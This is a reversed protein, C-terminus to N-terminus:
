THRAFNCCIQFYELRNENSFIRIQKRTELLLQLMLPIQFLLMQFHNFFFFFMYETFKQVARLINFLVLYFSYLRHPYGKVNVASVLPPPAPTGVCGRVYVPPTARLNQPLFHEWNSLNYTYGKKM